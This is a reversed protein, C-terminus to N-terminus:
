PEYADPTDDALFLAIEDPTPPLRTLDLTVRRILTAKDADANFTVGLEDLKKLVFADIPTRVRAANKVSPIAPRKIPQFAWFEREEETFFVKPGQEPEPRATKAGQGIWKEIVAIERPLLKMGKAPMDGERVLRIMESDDPHGPVLPLAGDEAEKLMFRRLRLDVGGKLKEGEGHCMFCHKKLIPRVDREFTLERMEARAASAPVLLVFFSARYAFSM